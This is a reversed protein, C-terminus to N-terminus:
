IILAVIHSVDVLARFGSIVLRVSLSPPNETFFDVKNFKVGLM